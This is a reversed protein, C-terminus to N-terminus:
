RGGYPNILGIAAGDSKRPARATGAEGQDDAALGAERALESFHQAEADAIHDAVVVDTMTWGRATLRRIRMSPGELGVYVMGAVYFTIGLLGTDPLGEFQLTGFLVVGLVLIAAELYLRHALLYAPPLVFGFWSFGDRIFATRDRIRRDGPPTLIIYSAM